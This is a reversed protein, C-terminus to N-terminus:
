KPLSVAEGPESARYKSVREERIIPYYDVARESIRIKEWNVM